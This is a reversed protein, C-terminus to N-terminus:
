RPKLFDRSCDLARDYIEQTQRNIRDVSEPSLDQRSSGTKGRRLNYRLQKLDRQKLLRKRNEFSQNDAAKQFNIRDLNLDLFVAIRSLISTANRNLEEYCVWAISRPQRDCVGIARRVHDIWRPLNQLCFEDVSFGSVKEVNSMQPHNRLFYYQSSLVDYAKRFIYITKRNDADKWEHSKVVRYPLCNKPDRTVRLNNKYISPVWREFENEHLTSTSVGHHQLMMDAILHRTWSNGSRPYSLLIVDNDRLNVRNQTVSRVFQSPRALNRVRDGIRALTQM